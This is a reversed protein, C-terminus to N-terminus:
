AAHARRQDVAIWVAAVSAGVAISAGVIPLLADIRLPAVLGGIMFALAWGLLPRMGPEAVAPGFLVVGLIFLMLGATTVLDIGVSRTWLALLTLPLAYWMVLLAERWERDAAATRQPHRRLRSAWDAVPVVFTIMGAVPWLGHPLLAWIATATGAAALLVHTRVAHRDWIPDLGAAARLATLDEQLKDLDPQM